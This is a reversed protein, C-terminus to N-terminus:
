IQSKDSHEIMKSEISEINDNWESFNKNNSVILLIFHIMLLTIAVISSLNVIGRSRKDYINEKILLNNISQIILNPITLITFQIIYSIHLTHSTISVLYIKKKIKMLNRIQYIGILKGISLIFFLPIVYIASLNGKNQIIKSAEILEYEKEDIEDLDESELTTFTMISILVFLLSVFYYMIFAVILIIQIKTSYFDQNAIYEFCYYQNLISLISSFVMVFINIIFFLM